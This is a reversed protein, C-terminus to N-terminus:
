VGKEIFVAAIKIELKKEQEKFSIKKEMRRSIYFVIRSTVETWPEAVKCSWLAAWVIDKSLIVTFSLKILLLLAEKRYREEGTLLFNEIVKDKDYPAISSYGLYTIERVFKRLINAIDIGGRVYSRNRSAIKDIDLNDVDGFSAVEWLVSGYAYKLADLITYCSHYGKKCTEIHDHESLSHTIGLGVKKNDDTRNDKSLWWGKIANEEKVFILNTEKKKKIDHNGIPNIIILANTVTFVKKVKPDIVHKV